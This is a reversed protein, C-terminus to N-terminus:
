RPFLSYISRGAVVLLQAEGRLVRTEFPTPERKEYPELLSSVIVTSKLKTQGDVV